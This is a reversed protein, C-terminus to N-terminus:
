PEEVSMAKIDGGASRVHEARGACLWSHDHDAVDSCGTTSVPLNVHDSPDRQSRSCWRLPTAETSSSEFICWNDLSSRLLALGAHHSLITNRDRTAISCNLTPWVQQNRYPLDSNYFCPAVCIITLLDNCVHISSFELHVFSFDLHVTHYAEAEFCAQFWAYYKPFQCYTSM